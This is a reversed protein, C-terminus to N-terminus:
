YFRHVSVYQPSTNQRQNKVRSFKETFVYASTYQGTSEQYNGIDQFVNLMDEVTGLGHVIVDMGGIMYNEVQTTEM